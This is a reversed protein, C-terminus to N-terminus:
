DRSRLRPVHPTLVSGVPAESIMQPGQRRSRWSKPRCPIQSAERCERIEFAGDLLAPHSAAVTPVNQDAFMMEVLTILERLLQTVQLTTWSSNGNSAFILTITSTGERLLLLNKHCILMIHM